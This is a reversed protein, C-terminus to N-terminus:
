AFDRAATPIEAQPAIEIENRQAMGLVVDAIQKRARAIERPPANSAGALESEVLRRARSAMSSLAVDRFEADAGRLALVVTDTSIKDFLLARARPSLKPLDNFSFLLSQLIRAEDPRTEALRQMVEHADAPDLSNIIQAIRSRHDGNKPRAALASVDERLANELLSAAVDSIAAPAIMRCFIENRLPPSLLAILKGALGSELRSLIYTAVLPHENELYGATSAEPAAALAEWVDTEAAGLADAMILSVQEPPAVGSLMDKVQGADGVLNPDNAFDAAFEELLSDLVSMPVAGLRAASRAVSRLDEPEFHRLLRTALPKGMALLIAAAKQPGSLILPGDASADLTEGNM